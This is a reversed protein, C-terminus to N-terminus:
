SKSYTVTGQDVVADVIGIVARDVPVTVTRPSTRAASGTTVLVVEGEGAGILDIAVYPAGAPDDPAAPAVDQLILLKFGGLEEDKITSVVQGTVQALQM